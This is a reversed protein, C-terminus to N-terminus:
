GRMIEIKYGEGAIKKESYALGLPPLVLDIWPMVHSCYIELRFFKTKKLFPILAMKSSIEPHLEQLKRLDLEYVGKETTEYPMSPYDTSDSKRIKPNSELAQKEQEMREYDSVVTTFLQDSMEGAECLMIGEKDLIMYPIGTIVTGILIKCDELELVLQRLFDRVMVMSDIPKFCEKIERIKVWESAINDYIAVQVGDVLSAIEGKQNLFVGVKAM